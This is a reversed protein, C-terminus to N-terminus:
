MARWSFTVKKHLVIKKLRDNISNACIYDQSQSFIITM